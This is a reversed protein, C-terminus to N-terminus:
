KGTVRLSGFSPRAASRRAVPSIAQRADGGSPPPAGTLTIGPTTNKPDLV